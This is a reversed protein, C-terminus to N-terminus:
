ILLSLIVLFGNHVAHMVIAPVISQRLYTIHAATIGVMALAPWAPVGTPHIAAFLLGNFLVALFRSGSLSHLAPTLVGRFITEEILPALVAAGVFLVLLIWASQNVALESTLPHSPAPLGPFLTMGCVLACALLPVNAIEALVGTVIDGWVQDKRFGIDAFSVRAGDVQYRFLVIMAVGVVGMAIPSSLSDNRVGLVPLMLSVGTGLVIFGLLSTVVRWAFRESRRPSPIGAPHGRPKIRGTARAAFYWVLIASGLAFAFMIIGGMVALALIASFPFADSRFSRDGAKEHAHILTLTDFFIPGPFAETIKALQNADLKEPGYVKLAAKNRESPHKRLMEFDRSDIREGLEHRLAIYFRAAVPDDKRVQALESIIPRLGENLERDTVTPGFVSKPLRKSGERLKMQLAVQSDIRLADFANTPRPALYDYLQTGILFAFVLWLIPWAFKWKKPEVTAPELDFAPESM